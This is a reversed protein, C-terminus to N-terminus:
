AALKRALAPDMPARSKKQRRSVKESVSLEKESTEIWFSSDAPSREQLPTSL